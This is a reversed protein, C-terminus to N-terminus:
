EEKSHFRHNIEILLTKLDLGKEDILEGLTMWVPEGCRICFIGKDLLFENIGPYKELLYEIADDAKIM